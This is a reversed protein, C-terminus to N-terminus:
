ISLSQEESRAKIRSVHNVCPTFPNSKALDNFHCINKEPLIPKICNTNTAIDLMCGKTINNIDRNQLYSPSNNNTERITIPLANINDIINVCESIFTKIYSIELSDNLNKTNDAGEEQEIDQYYFDAIYAIQQTFGIEHNFEKIASVGVQQSLNRECCIDSIRYSTAFAAIGITIPMFTLDSSLILVSQLHSPVNSVILDYGFLGISTILTFFLTVLLASTTKELLSKKNAITTNNTHATPKRLTM